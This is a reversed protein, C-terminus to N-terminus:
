RIFTIPVIGLPVLPGFEGHDCTVVEGSLEQALTICFCDPISIRGRAKLEGVRQWFDQSMDRREIVGDACLNQIGQRARPVDSLRILHYYVECLNITHAYCVATPDALLTTVVAEGPEESLYAVIASADLIHISM